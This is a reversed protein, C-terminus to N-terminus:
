APADLALELWLVEERRALRFLGDVHRDIDPHRVDFLREAGDALVQDDFDHVSVVPHRVLHDALLAGLLKAYSIPAAGDPLTLAPALFAIRHPYPLPPM